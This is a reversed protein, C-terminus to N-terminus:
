SKKGFLAHCEGVSLSHRPLSDRACQIHLRVLDCKKECCNRTSYRQSQQHGINAIPCWLASAVANQYRYKQTREQATTSFQRKTQRIGWPKATV